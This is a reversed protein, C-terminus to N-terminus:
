MELFDMDINEDYNDSDLNETSSAEASKENEGITPQHSIESKQNKHNENKNNESNERPAFNCNQFVSGIENRVIETIESLLANHNKEIDAYALIASVIFKTHSADSKKLIECARKHDPKDLNLRLTTTWLSM